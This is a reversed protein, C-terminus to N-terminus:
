SLFKYRKTNRLQSHLAENFTSIDLFGDVTTNEQILPILCHFQSFLMVEHLNFLEKLSICVVQYLFILLHLSNLEVTLGVFVSIRGSNKSGDGLLESLLICRGKQNFLYIHKSCKFHVRVFLTHKIGLNGLDCTSSLSCCLNGGLGHVRENCTIYAGTSILLKGIRPLSSFAYV